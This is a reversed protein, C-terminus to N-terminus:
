RDNALCTTVATSIAVASDHGSHTLTDALKGLVAVRPVIGEPEGDQMLHVFRATCAAGPVARLKSMELMLLVRVDDTMLAQAPVAVFQEFL